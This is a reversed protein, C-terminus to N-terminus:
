KRPQNKATNNLMMYAYVLSGKRICKNDLTAEKAISRSQMTTQNTPSDGTQKLNSIWFIAASIIPQLQLKTCKTKM